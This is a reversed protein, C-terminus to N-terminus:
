GGPDARWGPGVVLDYATMSEPEAPRDAWQEKLRLIEARQLPSTMAALRQHHEAVNRHDDHLFLSLDLCWAAGRHEVDVVLRYREDRRAGPCRAGTEDVAGVGTVVPEALLRGVLRAFRDRGLDRGVRFAVDVERRVMLDSVYSGLLVPEGVLSVVRGVVESALLASAEQRLQDARRLLARDEPTM